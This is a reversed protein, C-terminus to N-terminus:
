LGISSVYGELQLVTLQALSYQLAVLTSEAQMHGDSVLLAM